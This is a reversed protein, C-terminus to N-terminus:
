RAEELPESEPQESIEVQAPPETEQREQAEKYALGRTEPLGYAEPHLYTGQEEAPKDEEVVIRNAEAWPDKRVGTVQWSVKVHPQDTQIVFQGDAVEQAIIAQAFTGIVTLQYRYDRNLAEFYEPLTVTAYGDEDTTVNGNYVNMMDPSEVFSHNLYKAEPDLPHDIRFGGGSKSLNGTVQVDGNFYGAWGTASYVHVGDGYASYVYVGSAGAHRVEVGHNGADYIEIGDDDAWDVFVGDYAEGVRVGVYASEVHVGDDVASEVHVGDYASTVWLGSGTASNVYVGNRGASSVSVGDEGASNVWLGDDGASDVQIGDDGASTVHLGDGSARTNRLSLPAYDPAGFSGDITLQSGGTWTQGLHDHDSRSATDASGSGAYDVSFESGVLSLGTGATYSAGDDAECTVTGDVAIARISNGPSCSASVRRQLYGTDASFQTGSLDLGSGASYTTDDDGDALDGPVGTLNGWARYYAGQQGDLLDADLGSGAGDDDAIEAVATGDQLDAATLSGNVVMGSTISNAQGEDVYDADHDHDSRAVTTASGSGTFTVDLTVDGSLGGGTLGTGAYVATIDGDGGGTGVDDTECEVTGDEHVVRISSGAPCTGSVRQQVASAEVSFETGTLALGSGASYTTDDDAECVVTGDQAISRISQGAPCAGGVRTQVTDTRVDLTVAGSEGGGTLGYGAHVATIDGTGGAVSQCEVTGDAHIVRVASDAGCEGGVRRQVYGTDVSFESGTLHLGTGATYTTDDDGDALDAPVGSLGSWPVALAYLAYPAATLPQRPSLTTHTDTSDGPRVSVELYRAQGTFAGAGFDLQSAFYGDEVPVDEKLVTSGVQAGGIAADYLIFRLDYSGEAPVDGDTLRGQYTFATGLAAQVAVGGEPVPDQARVSGALTLLLLVMLLSALAQRGNM